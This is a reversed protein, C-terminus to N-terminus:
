HSYECTYMTNVTWPISVWLIQFKIVTATLRLITLLEAISLNWWGIRCMRNHIKWGIVRPTTQLSIKKECLLLQILAMGEDSRVSHNSTRPGVIVDILSNENCSPPIRWLKNQKQWLEDEASSFKELSWLGKLKCVWNM